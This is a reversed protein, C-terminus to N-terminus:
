GTEEPYARRGRRRRLFGCPLRVVLQESVDDRSAGPGKRFPAGQPIAAAVYPPLLLLAIIADRVRPEHSGALALLLGDTSMPHAAVHATLAPDVAGSLYRIGRAHLEALLRDTDDPEGPTIRSILQASAADTLNPAAAEGGDGQQYMRQRSIRSAFRCIATSM